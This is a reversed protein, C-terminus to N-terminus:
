GKWGSDELIEIVKEPKINQKTEILKKNVDMFKIENTSRLKTRSFQLIKDEKNDEVWKQILLSKGSGTAGQYLVSNHRSFEDCILEYDREQYDRLTDM